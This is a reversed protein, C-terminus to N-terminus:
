SHAPAQQPAEAPKDLFRGLLVWLVVASLVGTLFDTLVVMVATYVMLGVHFRNLALVQKVEAPKVMATAVYLLIGGICAMPVMELYHALFAALCLKLFCKFIGALPSVAGLKINTATRALAGTHPFGNLLPIFVQVLGQGWLEKNPNYPLGQNGALRDAMRSCLLSEVAAVFVIAAVFYALDGLFEATM